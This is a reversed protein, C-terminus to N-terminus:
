FNPKVYTFFLISLFSTHLNYKENNDTYVHNSSNHSSAKYKYTFKMKCIFSTTKKKKTKKIMINQIWQCTGKSRLSCSNLSINVSFFTLAPLVQSFSNDLITNSLRYRSRFATSRFATLASLM